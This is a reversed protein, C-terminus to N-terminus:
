RRRELARRSSGVLLEDWARAQSRDPVTEMLAQVLSAVVRSAIDSNTCPRIHQNMRWTKAVEKGLWDVGNFQNEETPCVRSKIVDPGVFNCNKRCASTLCAFAREADERRGADISSLADDVHRDVAKRLISLSQARDDDSLLIWYDTRFADGFEDSQVYARVALSMLKLGAMGCKLLLYWETLGLAARARNVVAALAEHAQRRIDGEHAAGVAPMVPLSDISAQVSGMWTLVAEDLDRPVEILGAARCSADVIGSPCDLFDMAIVCALADSALQGTLCYDIVGQISGPTIGQAGPVSLTVDKCECECECELADGVTRCCEAVKKINTDGEVAVREGNDLEFTLM